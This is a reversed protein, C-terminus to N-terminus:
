NAPEFLILDWHLEGPSSVKLTITHSTTEDFNFTGVSTLNFSDYGLGSYGALLGATKEGDIYPQFFGGSVKVAKVHMLINYKGKAIPRTKISVEGVPGLDAFLCDGYVFGNDKFNYAGTTFVIYTVAMKKDRPTSQWTVNPAYKKAELDIMTKQIPDNRYEPIQEFHLFDTPEVLTTIQEPEFIDFIGDVEHVFGNRVQMNYGDGVFKMSENFFYEVGSPQVQILKNEAMTPISTGKNGDVTPKGKVIPTSLQKAFETTSYDNDLIRYRLYQILKNEPNEFDDGANLYNKLDAYSRIGAKEAFISDSTVFLTRRCKLPLDYRNLRTLLSDLGTQEYAERLISYRPENKVMFDYLNYVVPDIVQNLEHIVGNVAEIDWIIIKAERNIFVGNADQDAAEYVMKCSLYDGSATSDLLKGERFDALKYSKHVVTHYQVLQKAFEVSVEEVSNIGKSQLYADVVENKMTFFTIPTSSYNFAAALGSRELIKYWESYEPKGQLYTLISEEDYGMFRENTKDDKCSVVSLLLLILILLYRKM